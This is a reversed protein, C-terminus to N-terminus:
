YQKCRDRHFKTDRERVVDRDWADCEGVSPAIAHDDGISIERHGDPEDGDGDGNTASHDDSASHLPRQCQDNGRRGPQGDM